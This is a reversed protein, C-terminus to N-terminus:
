RASFVNEKGHLHRRSEAKRPGAGGLVVSDARGGQHCVERTGEPECPAPTGWLCSVGQGGKSSLCFNPHSDAPSM